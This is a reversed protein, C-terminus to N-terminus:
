FFFKLEQDVEFTQTNKTMRAILTRVETPTKDSLAGGVAEDIYNIDLLTLGSCFYQVLAQDNTQYYPDNSCLENFREWYERM